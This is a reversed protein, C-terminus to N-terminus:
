PKRFKDSTNTFRNKDASLKFNARDDYAQRYRKPAQRLPPNRLVFSDICWLHQHSTSHESLWTVRKKAFGSNGAPRRDVTDNYAKDLIPKRQKQGVTKTDTTPPSLYFVSPLSSFFSNVRMNSTKMPARSQKAIRKPQRFACEKALKPRHKPKHPK